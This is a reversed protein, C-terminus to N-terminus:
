FMQYLNDATKQLYDRILQQGRELNDRHVMIDGWCSEGYSFIGDYMPVQRSRIMVPIGEGELLGKILYAESEDGSQFATVLEDNVDGDGPREAGCYPCVEYDSHYQEQCTPCIIMFVGGAPSTYSKSHKTYLLKM